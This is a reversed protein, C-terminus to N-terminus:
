RNRGAVNRGGRHELPPPLVSALQAAGSSQWSLYIPDASVNIQAANGSLVKADQANGYIDTIRADSIKAGAGDLRLSLDYSVTGEAFLVLTKRGTANGDTNQEAFLFANVGPTGAKEAFPLAAVFKQHRLQEVMNRYALVSPRPEFRNDTLSYGAVHGSGEMFLRFFYLSELNQSQGYTFKEIVTRAQEQLSGRNDAAFGTETDLLPMKAAESKAAQAEVKNLINREAGIGPGHAHYALIDIKTPDVLDIFERSRQDGETGAFSLGGNMVAVSNDGAGRKIAAAVTNMDKVYQSIPGAYFFPLDPENGLEWFHIKGPGEGGHQAAMKELKAAFNDINKAHKGADADYPMGDIFAAQVGEKEMKALTEATNGLNNPVGRVLDVGMLRLYALATADGTNVIGNNGIDLGYLFEGARAKGLTSDSVVGMRFSRELAPATSKDDLYFSIKGEYPGLPWASTDVTFPLTEAGSPAVQVEGDVSLKVNDNADNIRLQYRLLRTVAANNNLEFDIKNAAAKGFAFVGGPKQARAGKVKLLREWNINERTDYGTIVVSKIWLDSNVGDIRLDWGSTKPDKMDPKDRAGFFAKDLKFNM